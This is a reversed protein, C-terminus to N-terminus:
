FKLDPETQKNKISLETNATGSGRSNPSCKVGCGLVTRFAVHSQTDPSVDRVRRAVDAGEAILSCCILLNEKM